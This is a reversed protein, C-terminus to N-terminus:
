CDVGLVFLPNEEVIRCVDELPPEHGPAPPPTVWWSGEGTVQPGGRFGCCGWTMGVVATAVTESGSPIFAWGRVTVSCPGAAPCVTPDPGYGTLCRVDHAPTGNVDLRCTTIWGLDCHGPSFGPGLTEFEAVLDVNTGGAVGTPAGSVFTVSGECHTAAAPGAPVVTVAALLAAAAIEHVRM